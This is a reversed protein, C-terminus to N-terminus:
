GEVEMFTKPKLRGGVQMFHETGCFFGCGPLDNSNKKNPPLPPLLRLLWVKYLFTHYCLHLELYTPPSFGFVKMSTSSYINIVCCLPLVIFNFFMCSKQFHLVTIFINHVILCVSAICSGSIDTPFTEM